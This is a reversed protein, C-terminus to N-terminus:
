MILRVPSDKSRIERIIDDNVKIHILIMVCDYMFCLRTLASACSPSLCGSMRTVVVGAVGGVVVGRGLDSLESPPLTPSSLGVFFFHFSVSVFLLM